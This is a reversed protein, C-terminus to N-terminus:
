ESGDSRNIQFASPTMQGTPKPKTAPPEPTAVKWRGRRKIKLEEMVDEANTGVKAVAARLEDETVFLRTTWFHRQWAESLDIAHFDRKAREDVRNPM